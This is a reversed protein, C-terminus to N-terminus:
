IKLNVVRNRIPPSSGGCSFRSSGLAPLPVLFLFELLLDFSLFKNTPEITGLKMLDFGALRIITTRDPDTGHKVQLDQNEIEEIGCILNLISAGHKTFSSELNEWTKTTPRETMANDLLCLNIQLFIMWCSTFTDSGKDQISRYLKLLGHHAHNQVFQGKKCLLVSRLFVERGQALHIHRSESYGNVAALYRLLKSMLRHISGIEEMQVIMNSKIEDDVFFSSIRIASARLLREVTETGFIGDTSCLGVTEFIWRRSQLPLQPIDKVILDFLIEWAIIEIEGWRDSQILEFLGRICGILRNQTEPLSPQASTLVEYKYGRWSSYLPALLKKSINLISSRPLTPITLIRNLHTVHSFPLSREIIEIWRGAIEDNADSNFVSGVISCFTSFHSNQLRSPKSIDKEIRRELIIRFEPVEFYAVSKAVVAFTSAQLLNEDRCNMLIHDVMGLLRIARPLASYETKETIKNSADYENLHLSSM